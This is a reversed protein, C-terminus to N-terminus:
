SETVGLAALGKILAQRENEILKRVADAPFSYSVENGSEGSYTLEALHVHVTTDTHRHARDEIFEIRKLRQNLAEAREIEARRM